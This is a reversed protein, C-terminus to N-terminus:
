AQPLKQTIAHYCALAKHITDFIRDEGIAETLHHRDFDPKLDSEV